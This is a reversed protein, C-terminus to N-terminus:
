QKGGRIRFEATEDWEENYALRGESVSYSSPLVPLSEDIVVSRTLEAPVDEDDNGDEAKEEDAVLDLGPNGVSIKRPLAQFLNITKSKLAMSPLCVSSSMLPLPPPSAITLFIGHVLEAIEGHVLELALIIEM